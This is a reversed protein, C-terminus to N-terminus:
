LYFPFSSFFCPCFDVRQGQSYINEIHIVTQNSKTQQTKNYILRQPNNLALDTKIYIILEM